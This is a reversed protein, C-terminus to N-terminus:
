CLWWIFIVEMQQTNRHPLPPHVLSIYLNCHRETCCCSFSLRYETEYTAVTTAIISQEMQISLLYLHFTAEVALFSRKGSSLQNLTLSAPSTLTIWHWVLQSVHCLNEHILLPVDSHSRSMANWIEKWPISTKKDKWRLGTELLSCLCILIGEGGLGLLAKLNGIQVM